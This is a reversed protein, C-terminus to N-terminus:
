EFLRSITGGGDSREKLLFLAVEFISGSNKSEDPRSVETEEPTIGRAVGENDIGSSSSPKGALKSLFGIINYLNKFMPEFFIWLFGTM